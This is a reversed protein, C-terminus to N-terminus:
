APLPSMELNGHTDTVLPREEAELAKAIENLLLSPHCPKLLYSCAGARYAREEGGPVGTLFIIPIHRTAPSVKLREALREAVSFGGGGPILTDLIILSPMEKQAIACAKISDSALIVEFGLTRLRAMLARAIDQQDDVVLITRKM